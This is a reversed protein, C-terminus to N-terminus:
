AARRSIRSLLDLMETHTAMVHITAGELRLTYHVRRGLKVPCFKKTYIIKM